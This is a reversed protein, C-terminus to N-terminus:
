SLVHRRLADDVTPKVGFWREFGPAAQHLLMGLGDVIPNGRREAQALLSTKLPAYVIDNVVATKPLTGLDIDLDPQGTMGLSTTNVLLGAGGLVDPLSEIPQATARDGYPKVLDAARNASRNVVIVHPVGSSVLAYIIARAAGGAGIVVAPGSLPDWDPAGTRLNELFGYADTNDAFIQGDQFVLTNAAGIHRVSDTIHDAVSLIAEKHPITLNAGVFGMKPLTHIVDCLDDPAIDLKTYDGSIGHKKLWYRHIIPSKSQAIPHGIVAAVPFKM